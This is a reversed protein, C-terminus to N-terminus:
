AEWSCSSPCRSWCRTGPTSYFASPIALLANPDIVAAFVVATGGLAFAVPLGLFLAGFLCVFYLLTILELSM